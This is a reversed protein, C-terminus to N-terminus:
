GLSGPKVLHFDFGAERSQRRDQETGCVTLAVLLPRKRGARGLLRRALEYGDLGPLRLEVFALDPRFVEVADLADSGDRAVRVEHGVLELLMALSDAADAYADVVLVRLPGPTDQPSDTM